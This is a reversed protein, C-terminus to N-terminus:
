CGLQPPSGPPPCPPAHLQSPGAKEPTLLNVILYLGLAGIFAMATKGAPSSERILERYSKRPAQEPQPPITSCAILTISCLAIIAMRINM